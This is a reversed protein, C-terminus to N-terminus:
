RRGPAGTPMEVKKATGTSFDADTFAAQAASKVESKETAQGNRFGVRQVPFGEFGSEAFQNVGAAGAFPSNAMASQLGATFEKLKDFVQFDSPSFKLQGPQAACVESVKESGRMGDYKTCSFGNVVGSGKATYVTKVPQAAAQQPMKGKMMQEIQARQAPPMNKLQAEFQAMAGSMQQSMQNMTQQDMERYENKTRDLMVMRNRGGDTLFMVSTGSEMNARFRSSDLLMEQQTTKKTDLDTSEMQIRVGACLPVAALIVSSRILRMM